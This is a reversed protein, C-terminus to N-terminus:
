VVEIDWGNTPVIVEFERTETDTTTDTDTNSEAQEYEARLDLKTKGGGDAAVAFIQFPFKVGANLFGELVPNLAIGFSSDRVAQDVATKVNTQVVRVPAETAMRARFVVDPSDPLTLDRVGTIVVGDFTATISITAKRGKELTLREPFFFEGQAMEIPAGGNFAVTSGLEFFSMTLTFEGTPYPRNATDLFIISMQYDRRGDPQVPVGVTEKQEIKQEKTGGGDDARRAERAAEAKEQQGQPSAPKAPPAQPTDQLSRALIEGVQKAVDGAAGLADARADGTLQASSKALESAVDALRGLTANLTGSNTTILTSLDLRGAEALAAGLATPLPLDPPSQLALTAAPVTPAPTVDRARLVNPDADGIGPAPAIEYHSNRRMDYLEAGKAHSLVPEMFVAPSPLSVEASALVRGTRVSLDAAVDAAFGRLQSLAGDTARTPMRVFGLIRNVATRIQGVFHDQVLAPPIGAMTRAGGGGVAGAFGSLVVALHELLAGLEREGSTGDAPLRTLTDDVVTRLAAAYAVVADPDDLPVSAFQRLRLTLKATDVGVPGVPVADGGTGKLRLVVHGGCFGVPTTDAFSSLDRGGVRVQELSRVVQEREVSQLILRTFGFRNANLFGILNKLRAELLEQAGLEEELQDRLADVGAFTDRLRDAVDWPVAASSNAAVELGGNLSQRNELAGIQPLTAILAGPNEITLRPSVADFALKNLDIDGWPGSLTFEDNTNGIEISEITHVPIRTASSYRGVFNEDSNPSSDRNLPTRGDTTVVTVTVRDRQGALFLSHFVALAPGVFVGLVLASILSEMRSGDLNVEVSVTAEVDEVLPLEAILEAPSEETTLTVFREDLALVLAPDALVTRIVWWYRWLLSETFFFPTFPLFLIAAFDDLSIDVRYANLVEFYLANLAHIRNHNTVRDTRIRQQEEEVSQSIVNSWFSRITSSNQVTRQQINQASRAHVERDGEADTEVFGLTTAGSVILSAAAAGAISGVATGVAAGALTPLGAAANAVNGLVLGTVAGSIGGGVGGVVAGAAVFSGATAANAGFASTGGFQHEEATARAVEDVARQHFLTSRLRESAVTDERRSASTTRRWDLVSVQTDQGMFLSVSGQPEGLHIGTYIWDQRYSVSFGLHILPEDKPFHFLWGLGIQPVVQSSLVSLSRIEAQRFFSVYTKTNRTFKRCDPLVCSPADPDSEANVADAILAEAEHFPPFAALDGITHVALQGLVGAPRRTVSRLNVSSSDLIQQADLGHVAADVYGLIESLRVEGERAARVFGAQRIPEYALLDGINDIGLEHLLPVAADDVSDLTTLSRFQAFM